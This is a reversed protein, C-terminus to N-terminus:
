RQVDQVDQAYHVIMVNNDSKRFPDTMKKNMVRGSAEPLHSWLRLKQAIRSDDVLCNDTFTTVGILDHTQSEIAEKIRTKSVPMPTLDVPLCAEMLNADYELPLWTDALGLVIVSIGLDRAVNLIHKMAKPLRVGM